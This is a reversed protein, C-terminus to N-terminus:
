GSPVMANHSTLLYAHIAFHSKCKGNSQLVNRLFGIGIATNKVGNKVCRLMNCVARPGITSDRSDELDSMKHGVM